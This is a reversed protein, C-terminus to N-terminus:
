EIEGLIDNLFSSCVESYYEPSAHHPDPQPQHYKDICAIGMGTARYTSPLLDLSEIGFEQKIKKSLFEQEYLNYLRHLPSSIREPPIVHPVVIVKSSIGLKAFYDFLKVNLKLLQSYIEWYLASSILYFPKGESEHLRILHDRLEKTGIVGCIYGKSLTRMKYADRSVFLGDLLIIHDYNVISLHMEKEASYINAIDSKWQCYVEDCSGYQGDKFIMVGDDQCEISNRNWFAGGHTSITDIRLLDNHNKNYSSSFKKFFVGLSSTITLIKKM